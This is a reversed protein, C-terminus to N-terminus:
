VKVTVTSIARAREATLSKRKSREKEMVFVEADIVEFCKPFHIVFWAPSNRFGVYDPSGVTGKEVRILVGKSSKASLAFAIQEPTISSFPISSKGRSDKLEYPANMGHLQWWKRFRLGFDAETKNNIKPLSPLM